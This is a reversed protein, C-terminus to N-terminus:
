GGEPGDLRALADRLRAADEFALADIAAQMRASLEARTGVIPAAAAAAARAEDEAHQRALRDFREHLMAAIDEADRAEAAQAAAEDAGDPLGRALVAVKVWRLASLPDGAAIAQTARVCAARPADEPALPAPPEAGEFPPLAHRAPAVDLRRWGESAAKGALRSASVGFRRACDGATMGACYAARVQAWVEPSHPPRFPM